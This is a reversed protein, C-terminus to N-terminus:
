QSPQVALEEGANEHESKYQRWSGLQAELEEMSSPLQGGEKKLAALRRCSADPLSSYGEHVATLCTLWLIHLLGTTGLVNEEALHCSAALHRSIAWVV